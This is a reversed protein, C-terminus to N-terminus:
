RSRRDPRADVARDDTSAPGDQGAVAEGRLAFIRAEMQQILDRYSSGQMVRVFQARYNAALSMGDVVVDRVAWRDGREVMRYSFPLDLGSRTAIATRVTALTGDISEGLFHVRVGDALRIRSVIGVIFSRELFEAFLGVFEAQEVPTRVSWEPGLSLQAAERFDFIDHVLARIADLREEPKGETRPDVLMRGATAFFGRMQEVPSVARAEAHLLCVVIVVIVGAMCQRM